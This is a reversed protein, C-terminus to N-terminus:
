VDGYKRSDDNLGHALDMEELKVEAAVCRRVVASARTVICLM